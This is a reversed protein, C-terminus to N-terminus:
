REYFDASLKWGYRAEIISVMENRDYDGIDVFCQPFAEDFSVTKKTKWNRIKLGKGFFENHVAEAYEGVLYENCADLASVWAEKSCRGDEYESELEYAQNVLVNYKDHCAALKPYQAFRFVKDFVFKM